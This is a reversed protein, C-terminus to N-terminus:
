LERVITLRKSFDGKLEDYYEKAGTKGKELKALALLIKLAKDYNNEIDYLLWDPVPKKGLKQIKRELKEIHNRRKSLAHATSFLELKEEIQSLMQGKMGSNRAKKLATTYSEAMEFLKERGYKVLPRNFAKEREQLNELFPRLVRRAAELYVTRKRAESLLLGERFKSLYRLAEPDKAANMYANLFYLRKRPEPELKFMKRM